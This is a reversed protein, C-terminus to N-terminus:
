LSDLAKLKREVASAFDMVSLSGGDAHHLPPESREQAGRVYSLLGRVIRRPYLARGAEPPQVLAHRSFWRLSAPQQQDGRELQQFPTHQERNADARQFQKVFIHRDQDLMPDANKLDIGVIMENVFQQLFHRPQIITPQFLQTNACEDIGPNKKVSPM